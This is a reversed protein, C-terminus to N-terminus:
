VALWAICHRTRGISRASATFTDQENGPVPAARHWRHETESGLQMAAAVPDAAQPRLEEPRGNHPRAELKTREVMTWVDVAKVPQRGDCLETAAHLDPIALAISVIDPLFHRLRTGIDDDDIPDDVTCLGSCFCKAKGIGEQPV